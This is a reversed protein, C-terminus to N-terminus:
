RRIAVGAEELEQQRLRWVAESRRRAGLKELINHVHNKVTPLQIQLRTAIEKNALGEDILAVIERERRTLRARSTLAGSESALAAVRRLLAGAIRGSCPLEGRVAGTVAAVLQEISGDRTVYASIGAEAWAIVEDAEEVVSLAVIRLHPTAVTLNRAAALGKEMGLDIVAVQPGCRRAAGIAEGAGGATAVVRLGEQRGLVDALGEQYLRVDAIVLVDITETKVIEGSAATTTGQPALAKV